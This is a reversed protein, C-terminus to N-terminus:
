ENSTEVSTATEIVKPSDIVQSMMEDTNPVVEVKDTSTSDNTEKSSLTNCKIADKDDKSNPQNVPHQSAPLEEWFDVVRLTQESKKKCKSSSKSSTKSVSNSSSKFVESPSPGKSRVWSTPLDPAVQTFSKSLGDFSDNSLLLQSQSIADVMPIPKEENFTPLFPSKSFPHVNNSSESKTEARQKLRIPSETPFPLTDNPKSDSARKSYKHSESPHIASEDAPGQSSEPPSSFPTM